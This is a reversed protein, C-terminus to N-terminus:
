VRFKKTILHSLDHIQRSCNYFAEYEFSVTGYVLSFNPSNTQWKPFVRISEFVPLSRYDLKEYKTSDDDDPALDPVSMPSWAEM